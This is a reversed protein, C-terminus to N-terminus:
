GLGRFPPNRAVKVVANDSAARSSSAADVEGANTLTGPRTPVATVYFTISRGPLLLPTRCSVSAAKACALQGAELRRLKLGGRPRDTLRVAEASGTGANHVTLRYRIPQGVVATSVEATKQVALEPQPTPSPPDTVCDRASPVATASSSRGDPSVVTWTPRDSLPIGKVVFAKQVNGPGFETGQGRDVPAPQFRNRSGIPVRLRRTGPNEYGFTASYTTGQATVCTLFVGVSGHITPPTVGGERKCRRPNHSNAVATRTGQYSVTWVLTNARPIRTVKFAEPANGPRFLTPQGRDRPAPVFGNALGVPVAITTANANEYGFTADYTGDAHPTVCTVWIAISQSRPQPSGCRRSKITATASRAGADGRVTWTSESRLPVGSVTFATETRGPSFTSPQGRDPGNPTVANDVGVAVTIARTEDNEYGFTADYTGNSQPQVCAVFLGTSPKLPPPNCQPTASSAAATSTAGAFRVTWALPTASPVGSVVFAEAVRGPLFDTPQQRDPGGPEVNNDAGVAITEDVVNESEYGFHATYTGDPGLDVCAAFVHIPQASPQAVCGANWTARGASDWNQGPFSGFPPIIDQPHHGAHGNLAASQAVTIQVYQPGGVKHCLTVKDSKAAKARGSALSSALSGSCACAIGAALVMIVIGYRSRM